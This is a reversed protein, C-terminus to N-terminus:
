PGRNFSFRGGSWGIIPFDTYSTCVRASCWVRVFAGPARSGKDGINALLGAKAIPKEVDIYSGISKTLAGAVLATVVFSISFRM